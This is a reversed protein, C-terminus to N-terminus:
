FADFLFIMFMVRLLNSLNLLRYLLGYLM